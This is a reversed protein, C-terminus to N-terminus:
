FMYVLRIILNRLVELVVIAVLASLDIFGIPPIFKRFPALIPETLSYLIQVVPNRPDPSVWSILARFVVLWV